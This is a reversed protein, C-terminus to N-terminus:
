NVHSIATTRYFQRQAMLPEILLRARMECVCVCWTTKFADTYHARSTTRPAACSLSSKNQEFINWRWFTKRQLTIFPRHIRCRVFSRIYYINREILARGCRSCQVCLLLYLVFNLLYARVLWQANSILLEASAGGRLFPFLQLSIYILFGSKWMVVSCCCSVAHAKCLLISSTSFQDARSQVRQSKISVM